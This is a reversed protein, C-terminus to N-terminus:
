PREFAHDRPAAAAGTFRFTSVHYQVAGVLSSPRDFYAALSQQLGPDIAEADDRPQHRSLIFLQYQGAGPLEIAYRGEDDAVAFDGGLARLSARALEWDAVDAGARFGAVGITATGQRQQPLALIRAGADPRMNGEASMYTIRGTLARALGATSERPLAATTAPSVPAGSGAAAPSPQPAPATTSGTMRGALFGFGFLLIGTAVLVPLAPTKWVSHARRERRFSVPPTSNSIEALQAIPDIAAQPPSQAGRITRRVAPTDVSKAPLPEVPIPEPLPVPQVDRPQAVAAVGVAAPAAAAATASHQRGLGIEALADLAHALDADRLDLKAGPLPQVTGDLDPIRITRGCTPCDTLAGAKNRSIGLFQECHPCRFKIPM